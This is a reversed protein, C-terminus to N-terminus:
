FQIGKIIGFVVTWFILFVFGIVILLIVVFLINIGIGWHAWTRQTKQFHNISDWRKNQWAWENGKAGLIFCMVLWVGPILCLLSIWTNNVIGWIWTLLFAGWNWHKIENPFIAQNGRGSTNQEQSVEWSGQPTQQQYNRQQQQAPWNLQNGCNGCFGTGFAVQLGCKPCNYWQQMM